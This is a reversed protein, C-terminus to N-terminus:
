GESALLEVVAEGKYGSMLTTLWTAFWRRMNLGEQLQVSRGTSLRFLSTVLSHADNTDTIRDAFFARNVARISFQCQNDRNM